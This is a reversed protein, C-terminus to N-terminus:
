ISLLPVTCSGMFVLFSTGFKGAFARWEEAKESKIRWEANVEKKKEKKEKKKEGGGGGGGGGVIKLM